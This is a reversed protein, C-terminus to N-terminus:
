RNDGSGQIQGREKRSHLKDANRIAVEGLSIGLDSAIASVYWLVDGLEKKLENAKEESLVGNDDRIVKKYKNAIEGAEGALGLIPYVLKASEPYIATEKALRQYGELTIQSFRIKEIEEASM